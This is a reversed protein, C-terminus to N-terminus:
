TSFVGFNDSESICHCYHSDVDDNTLQALNEASLSLLQFAVLLLSLLKFHLFGNFREKNHSIMIQKINLNYYVVNQLLLLTTITRKKKNKFSELYFCESM